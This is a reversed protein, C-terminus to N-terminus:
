ERLVGVLDVELHIHSVVAGHRCEKRTLQQGMANIYRLEKWSVNIEPELLVEVV